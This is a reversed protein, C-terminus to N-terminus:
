VKALKQEKAAKEECLTLLKMKEENTLGGWVVGFESTTTGIAKMTGHFREKTHQRIPVDWRKDELKM